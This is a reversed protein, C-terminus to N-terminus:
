KFLGHNTEVFPNKYILLNQLTTQHKNKGAIGLDALIVWVTMIM